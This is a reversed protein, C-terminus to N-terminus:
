ATMGRYETRATSIIADCLAKAAEIRKFAHDEFEPDAMEYAMRANHLEETAERFEHYLNVAGIEDVLKNIEIGYQKLLEM